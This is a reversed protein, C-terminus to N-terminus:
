LPEGSEFSSAMFRLSDKMYSNALTNLYDLSQLVNEPAQAFDEFRRFTSYEGYQVEATRNAFSRRKRGM